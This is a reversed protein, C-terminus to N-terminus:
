PFRKGSVLLAIAIIAVSVILTAIAAYYATM